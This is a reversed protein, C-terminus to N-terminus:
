RSRSSWPRSAYRRLDAFEAFGAPRVPTPRAAEVPPQDFVIEVSGIKVEVPPQTEQVRSQGRPAPRTAPTLRAPTVTRVSDPWTEERTENMAPAAHDIAVSRGTQEPPVFDVTKSLTRATRPALADDFDIAFPQPEPAAPSEHDFPASFLREVPRTPSLPEIPTQRNTLTPEDSVDLMARSEMSENAPPVSTSAHTEITRPSDAQPQHHPRQAALGLKSDSEAASGLVRAAGIVRKGSRSSADSNVGILSPRTAAADVPAPWHFQSPPQPTASATPWGAARQVM